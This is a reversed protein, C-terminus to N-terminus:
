AQVEALQALANDMRAQAESLRAMNEAAEAMAKEPRTVRTNLTEPM